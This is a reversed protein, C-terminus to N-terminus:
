ETLGGPIRRTFRVADILLSASRQAGIESVILKHTMKEGLTRPEDLQMRQLYPKAPKPM